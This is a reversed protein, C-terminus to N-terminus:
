CLWLLLRTWLVFVILYHLLGTIGVILKKYLPSFCNRVVVFGEKDISIQIRSKIFILFEFNRFTSLLKYTM